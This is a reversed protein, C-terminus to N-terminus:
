IKKRCKFKKLPIVLKRAIDQHWPASGQVMYLEGEIIQDRKGDDPLLLYDDYTFRVKEKLVSVSM